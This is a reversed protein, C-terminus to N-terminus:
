RPRRTSSRMGALFDAAESVDGPPNSTDIRVYQQLLDVAERQIAPWDATAPQALALALAFTMM